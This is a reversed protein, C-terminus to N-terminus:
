KKPVAKFPTRDQTLVAQYFAMLDQYPQGLEITRQKLGLYRDYTLTGFQLSPTASFEAVPNSFSIGKPLEGPQWGEPLKIITQTESNFNQPIVVPTQRANRLTSLLDEVDEFVVPYFSLSRDKLVKAYHPIQFTYHVDLPKSIDRYDGFRYDTLTVNPFIRALGRLVLDRRKEDPTARFFQRLALESSGFAQIDVTCKLNGEPDLEMTADRHKRHDKAGFPPTLRWNLPTLVGLAKRDLAGVPLVGPGALPETPDVWLLDKGSAVAVLVGDFQALAPLDPLLEGSGAQRYLYVLPALKVSRLACALLVAMDHATGKGSDIIDQIPRDPNLYVPLGTDVFDVRAQIASKVQSVRDALADGTNGGADGILDEVQRLDGEVYQMVRKRYPLVAQEWSKNPTFATLPALDQLAPQFNEYPIPDEPGLSFHATKEKNKPVTPEVAVFDKPLRLRAGFLEMNAPIKLSLDRQLSPTYDNWRFAFGAEPAVPHPKKPDNHMDKGILLSSTKTELAYKVELAQGAQLEPLRVSTINSLGLPLNEQPSVWQAQPQKDAPVFGGKSDLDYLKLTQISLTQSDLNLSALLPLPHDPKVRAAWLQHVTVRMSKDPRWEVQADDLLDLAKPANPATFKQTAQSLLSQVQADEGPTQAIPASACGSLVLIFWLSVLPVFFPLISSADKDTPSKSKM